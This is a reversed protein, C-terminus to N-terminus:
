DSMSNSLSRDQVGVYSFLSPGGQRAARRAGTPSPVRRQEARRTVRRNCAKSASIAFWFESLPEELPAFLPELPFPPEEPLAIGSANLSAPWRAASSACFGTARLMSAAPRTVAAAASVALARTRLVTRSALRSASSVASAAASVALLMPAAITVAAVSATRRRSAPPSPLELPALLPALEPRLLLEPVRDFDLPDVERELPAPELRALAPLLPLEREFAVDEPLLRLDFLPPLGARAFLAEDPLELRLLPEDRLAAPLAPEAPPDPEPAEPVRLREEDAEGEPPVLDRDEPPRGFAADDLLPPRPLDPALPDVPLLPRPADVPPLDDPLLLPPPRL